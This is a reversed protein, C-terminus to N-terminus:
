DNLVPRIANGLVTQGTITNSLKSTYGYTMVNGGTFNIHIACDEYGANRGGYTGCWYVGWGNFFKVTKADYSATKANTTREGTKPLFLGSEMDAETFEVAATNYRTEEWSPSTTFLLGNIKNTGDMYYGAQMHARGEGNRAYLKNVDDRTPLRYQGKSAWFAVDGALLPNSGDLPSAEFREDGSLEELASIDTAPSTATGTRRFVKGTLDFNAVNSTVQQNHVRAARGITGWSFYDFHTYVSHAEDEKFADTDLTLTQVSSGDIGSALESVQGYKLSFQSEWQHDYINWGQQWGEGDTGNMWARLNGKAWKVGEVKVFKDRKTGVLARIDLAPMRVYLGARLATSSAPIGKATGEIIDEDGDLVRVALDTYAYAPVAALIKVTADAGYATKYPFYIIRDNTGTAATPGTVGTQDDTLTYTGNLQMGTKSYLKFACAYAPVDQLTFEMVAMVHHFHLEGQLDGSAGAAIASAMVFPIVDTREAYRPITLTGEETGAYAYPYVATGSLTGTFTACTFKAYDTGAGESVTFKFLAGDTNYVAIADDATWTVKGDTDMASRTDALAASLTVTRAGDPTGAEPASEKACAVALAAAAGFMLWSRIRM